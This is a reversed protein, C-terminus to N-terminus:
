EPLDLGGYQSNEFGVLEPQTLMWDEIDEKSTFIGNTLLYEEMEEISSGELESAVEQSLLEQAVLSAIIAPIIWRHLSPIEVEKNQKGKRLTDRIFIFILFFMLLLFVGFMVTKM